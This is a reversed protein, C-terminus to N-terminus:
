TIILILTYIKVSFNSSYPSFYFSRYSLLLKFNHYSNLTCFNLIFNTLNESMVKPLIMRYDYYIYIYIHCEFINNTFICSMEPSNCM